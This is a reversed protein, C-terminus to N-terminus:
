ILNILQRVTRRNEDVIKFNRKIHSSISNELVQM